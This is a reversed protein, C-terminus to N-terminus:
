IPHLRWETDEERDFSLSCRYEGAVTTEAELRLHAEGVFKREM